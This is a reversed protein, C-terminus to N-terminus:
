QASGLSTSAPRPVPSPSIPPPKPPPGPRPGPAASGACDCDPHAPWSRRRFRWDPTHLEITADIVAPEGGDLFTLAQLAAAGAVVTAVAVESAPGYRGPVGLQVALASWAPDRDIRHLDACRLCSTLGPLVLPGVIGADIGLSITLHPAGTAHLARRRDDGIPGDGALITLDPREDPPLPATDVEPAAQRLARDAVLVLPQGEDGPSVGGPAAHRLGATGDPSCHVRGVGAAALVSAVQMAVRSNGFITVSAQRRAALVEAAQRGHRTALAALEGALRPV